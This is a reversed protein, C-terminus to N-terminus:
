LYKFGFNSLKPKKKQLSSNFLLSTQSASNDSSIYSKEKRGQMVSEWIRM